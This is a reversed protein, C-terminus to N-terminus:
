INKRWLLLVSICLSLVSFLIISYPLAQPGAVDMGVGAIPTAVLATLGWVTTLSATGSILDSGVLRKGLLTLAITNISSTLAGAIATLPWIAPTDWFLALGLFSVAIACVNIPLQLSDRAKSFLYSLPVQLITSGFLFAALM